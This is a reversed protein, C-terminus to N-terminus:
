FIYAIYIPKSWFLLSHYEALKVSKRWGFTVAKMTKYSKEDRDTYAKILYILGANFMNKVVFTALFYLIGVLFLGGIWSARHSGGMINVGFDRLWSYFQSSM